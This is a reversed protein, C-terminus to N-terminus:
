MDVSAAFIHLNSFNVHCTPKSKGQCTTTSQKPTMPTIMIGILIKGSM